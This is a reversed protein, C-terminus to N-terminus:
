FIDDYKHFITSLNHAEADPAHMIASWEDEAMDISIERESAMLQAALDDPALDHKVASPIGM